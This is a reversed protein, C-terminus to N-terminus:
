KQKTSFARSETNRKQFAKIARLQKKAKNKARIRSRSDGARYRYKNRANFVKTIDVELTM